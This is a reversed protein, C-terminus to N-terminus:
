HNTLTCVRHYMHCHTTVASHRGGKVAIYHYLAEVHLVTIHQSARINHYNSVLVSKILKETILFIASLVNGVVYLTSYM